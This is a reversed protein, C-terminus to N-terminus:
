VTLGGGSMLQDLRERIGKTGIVFVNYQENAKRHYASYPTMLYFPFRDRASMAASVLEIPNLARDYAEDLTIVENAGMVREGADAPQYEVIPFFRKKGDFEKVPVLIILGGDKAPITYGAKVEPQM